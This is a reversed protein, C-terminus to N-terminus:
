NEFEGHFELEYSTVHCCFFVTHKYLFCCIDIFHEVRGFVSQFSCVVKFNHNGKSNFKHDGSFRVSWRQAILLYIRM